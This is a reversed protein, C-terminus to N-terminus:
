EELGMRRLLATFRPDDRYPDYDPHVKLFPFSLFLRLEAHEDLCAFVGDPKGIQALFWAGDAPNATCPKGSQAVLWELTSGLMGPWGGEDYGSRVAAEAEPSPVADAIVELAADDNGNGHYARALPFSLSLWDPGLERARELQEVAAAYDGTLLLFVGLNVRNSWNWPDLDMAQRIQALAQDARGHQMLFTAYNERLPGHGPDRDIGQELMHQARNWKWEMRFAWALINHATGNAADLALAREAATRAEV